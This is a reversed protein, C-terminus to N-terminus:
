PPNVGTVVAGQWLGRITDVDVVGDAISAGLGIAVVPPVGEVALRGDSFDLAGAVEPRQVSGTATLRLDVVGAVEVREAQRDLAPVFPVLDALSGNLRLDLRGAPEAEAASSRIWSVM